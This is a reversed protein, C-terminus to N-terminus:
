FSNSRFLNKNANKNKNNFYILNDNFICVTETDTTGDILGAGM